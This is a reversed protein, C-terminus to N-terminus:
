RRNISLLLFDVRFNCIKQSKYLDPSTGCVRALEAEVRVVRAELGRNKNKLDKVREREAALVAGTLSTLVLNRTSICLRM